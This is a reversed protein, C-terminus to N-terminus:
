TRLRSSTDGMAHPRGASSGRGLVLTMVSGASRCRTVTEGRTDAPAEARASTGAPLRQRGHPIRSAATRYAAQPGTRMASAASVISAPSSVASTPQRIDGPRCLRLSDRTSAECDHARTFRVGVRRPRLRWFSARTPARTGGDWVAPRTLDHASVQLRDTAKTLELSVAAQGSGHAPPGAARAAVGLLV